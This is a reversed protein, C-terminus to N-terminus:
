YGVLPHDDLVQPLKVHILDTWDESLVENTNLNLAWDMDARLSSAWTGAGPVGGSRTRSTARGGTGDVAHRGIFRAITSASASLSFAGMCEEKIAGDGGHPVSEQAIRDDAHTEAATEYLRVDLGDLVHEKLYDLYPLGTVNTVLYSMLMTGYNSYVVDTGPTFDLPQAVQYEIIDRLTAPRTGNFLTLAVHRFEFAVDKTSGTAAWRRAEPITQEAFIVAFRADDGSGGGHLDIPYLGQEETDVFQPTIIHDESVFLHSPRWFRKSIEGEFIRSYDFVSSPTTYFISSQQRGINESDHALICYRRNSPTGYMSFGKVIM